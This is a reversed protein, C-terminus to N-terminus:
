GDDQYDDGHLIWDIISPATFALAVLAIGCMAFGVVAGTM